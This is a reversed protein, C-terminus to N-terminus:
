NKSSEAPWMLLQDWAEARRDVTWAAGGRGRKDVRRAESRGGGVVGGADDREGQIRGDDPGEGGWWRGRV